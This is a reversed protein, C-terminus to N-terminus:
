TLVMLENTGSQVIVDDQNTVKFDLTLIGREPNRTTRKAAVAITAKVTDGVLVPADFRWTWGLSAVASFRATAQNKLGDVISLVLLGHAVRAPFGLAKAAEDSMHIEFRDGTLGAFRDIDDAQVTHAPTVFWDGPEVDGFRLGHRALERGYSGSTM